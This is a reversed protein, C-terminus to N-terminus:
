SPHRCEKERKLHIDASKKKKREKRCEKKEKKRCEKASKDESLKLTTQCGGAEV